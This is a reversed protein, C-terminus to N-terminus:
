EETANHVAKKSSSWVEKSVVKTDSWVKKSITKTEHWMEKSDDKIASSTACGYMMLVIGLAFFILINKMQSAKAISYNKIHLELNLM